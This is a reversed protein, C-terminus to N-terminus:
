GIITLGSVFYYEFMVKNVLDCCVRLLEGGDSLFAYESSLVPLQAM